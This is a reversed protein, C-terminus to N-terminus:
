SIVLFFYVSQTMCRAWNISNAAIFRVEDIKLDQDLFMKKVIDQCGDFDTQIALPFVNRSQTTTMQKRQFETVKGHPYLIYVEVNDHRSCASIAAAGTDGSTAGLVVIKEGREKAFHNLLAGLLQMAVDKFALTPGHFLELVWRNDEISELRVVDKIDFSSYAEEVLENFVHEEIEEDVYPYLVKSAIEQFSLESWSHIEELTFKPFEQPMYLGGDPALGGLLVESFGVEPSNGRTSKYRM